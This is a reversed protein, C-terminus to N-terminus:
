ARAVYEGSETSVKIKEGEKIFLPVQLTYGTEVTADKTANTATNGATASTTETVELEVNKPLEISIPREELFLTIVKQGETLFNEAMGTDEKSLKFQSYDQNDMFHLYNEDAYLFQCSRKEAAAEEVKQENTYSKETISGTELNKVKVKIIAQGRGKKIHNYDMVIYTSDDDKFVKGEKLENSNLSAM